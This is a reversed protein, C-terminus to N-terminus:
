PSDAKGPIWDETSTIVLKALNALIYQTAQINTELWPWLCMRNKQHSAFRKGKILRLTVDGGKIGLMM